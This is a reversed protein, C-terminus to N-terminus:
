KLVIRHEAVGDHGASSHRAFVGARLVDGNPLTM